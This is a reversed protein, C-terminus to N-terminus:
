HRDFLEDAKAACETGEIAFPTASKSACVLVLNQGNSVASYTYSFLQGPITMRTLVIVPYRGGPITRSVSTLQDTSAGRSKFNKAAGERIGNNFEVIGAADLREPPQGGDLPANTSQVVLDSSSKLPPDAPWPASSLAEQPALPQGAQSCQGMWGLVIIAIAVGMPWRVLIGDDRKNTLRKSFLYGIYFILVPWLIMGALEGLKVASINQL